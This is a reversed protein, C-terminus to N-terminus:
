VSLGSSCCGVKEPPFYQDLGCATISAPVRPKPSYMDFSFPTLPSPAQLYFYKTVGGCPTCVYRTTSICFEIGKCTLAQLM